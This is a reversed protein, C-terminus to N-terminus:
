RTTRVTTNCTRRSWTSGDLLRVTSNSITAANVAESFFITVSSNIAVNTAGTAPTTSTVTPPTTDVPPTTSLVVDVWYNSNQYFQSPFHAPTGYTFVGGSVPM